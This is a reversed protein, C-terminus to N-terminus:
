QNGGQTGEAALKRYQRIIKEVDSSKVSQHVDDNVMIVPALGCAGFCRGVDLTFLADPTTKGVDVGLQDKFATLVENAGRVYCATGLCIRILFKGRPVRSFFSYFTVVGYVKSYSEGLEEAIQHIAWPPVYGFHKQTHQLVPILAGPKERYEKIIEHLQNQQTKEGTCQCDCNKTITEL